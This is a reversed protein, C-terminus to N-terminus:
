PKLRPEPGPAPSSRLRELGAQAEKADDSGPALAVVHDFAQAAEDGRGLAERALGAALYADTLRPELKLAQDLHALAEEPKKLGLLVRGTRHQLAASDPFAAEGQRLVHLAEETRRTRFLCLALNLYASPGAEARQLMERLVPEAEAFSGASVLADSLARRTEAFAPAQALIEGYIRVAGARDGADERAEARRFRLYLDLADRADPAPPAEVHEVRTDLERALEAAVRPLRASAEDTESPDQLSDYLEPRPGGVYLYPGSRLAVLPKVGYQPLLALNEILAPGPRQSERGQLLPVLSVGDVGKPAGVGALDLLTPLLDVTRVVEAITKGGPIQGPASLILPVRSTASYVFYGFGEEGHEGQADGHDAVVAIVADPHGARVGAVLRGVEADLAALACEYPKGALEPACSPPVLPPGKADALHVWLFAPGPGLRPLDGLFRGVTEGAPARRGRDVRKGPAGLDDEYREFGRALGFRQDLRTSSVRASTHYGARRFADVLTSVGTALAEGVRVGHRRPLLGTLLSAHAPLCLPASTYAQELVVGEAALAELAPTAVPGHGYVRLRDPRVADLTVLLVSLRRAPPPGAQRWFWVAAAASALAAVLVIWPVARRPAAESM